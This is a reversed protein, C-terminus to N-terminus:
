IFDVSKISENFAKEWEAQQARTDCMVVIPKEKDLVLNTDRRLVLFYGDSEEDRNMSKNTPDFSSCSVKYSSLSIPRKIISDGPRKEFTAEDEYWIFYNGRLILYRRKWTTKFSGTTKLALYGSFFFLNHMSNGDANKTIASEERKPSKNLLDKQFEDNDNFKEKRHDQADLHDWADAQPATFKFRNYIRLAGDYSYYLYLSIIVSAIIANNYDMMTFFTGILCWNGFFVSFGFAILVQKQEIIMGNVASV